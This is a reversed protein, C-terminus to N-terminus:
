MCEKVSIAYSDSSPDEHFIYKGNVIDVIVNNQICTEQVPIEDSINEEEVAYDNPIPTDIREDESIYNVPLPTVILEDGDNSTNWRVKQNM